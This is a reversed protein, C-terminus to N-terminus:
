KARELVELLRWRKTASLPRTEVVRVLDGEHAENHEDHAHLTKSSRVIKKYRRHRRSTDVRVTITKAAKDSVVIGQRDRPRGVAHEVAVPPAAASAPKAARSKARGHRRATANKARLADREAQRDEPSLPGRTAPEKAARKLRRREKPAVVAVPEPKPPAAPAAGAGAGADGEADAEADADADAELTPEPAAEAEPEPAPEPEVAEAEAEAAVEAEPEPAPELAEAEADAEPAAEAEGDAVVADEAVSPETGVDDVTTTAADAAVVEPEEAPQAAKPEKKDAM